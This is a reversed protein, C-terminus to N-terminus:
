KIFHTVERDSPIPFLVVALGVTWEPVSYSTHCHTRQLGQLFPCMQGEIGIDQGCNIREVILKHQVMTVPQVM